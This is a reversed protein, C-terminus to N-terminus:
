DVRALSDAPRLQSIRWSGLAGALLGGVLALLVALGIVALTVTASWHVPISQTTSGLAGGPGVGRSIEGSGGPGGQFFRLGIDSTITATLKPAVKDIIAAGALGLGIGAAGGILGIALSEGMVQGIIRRSRWSIAKLTGFERARRSVASMTLLGAVAFAAILVLVSLWTGLTGALKAASGLSGNIESALSSSTTVTAHPLLAKIENQVAGIDATSDATVYITNVYGKLSGSPGQTGLAQAAALPIYVNPPSSAEPQTVIGIVTFTHKAITIHSGVKLKNATAYAADVLAVDASADSTRLSRGSKLTGSSLPGLNEHALDVGQVSFQTPPTFNSSSVTVRNDSLSLGGAASKVHALKAIKGVDAYSIVGKGASVLNDLTQPGTSCNNNICVTPNKGPGGQISIRGGGKPGALGSGEAPPQTVTMDTGVGYLSHLVSAQANKVGAAAASVTIVLGIGLALGLAIVIAQRARRGLERGLYRLFFSRGGTYARAVRVEATTTM